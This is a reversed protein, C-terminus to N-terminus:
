MFVRTTSGSKTIHSRAGDLLSAYILPAGPGGVAQLIATVPVAYLYPMCTRYPVKPWLMQIESDRPGSGTGYRVPVPVPVTGTGTGYPVTPWLMQVTAPGIYYFMRGGM